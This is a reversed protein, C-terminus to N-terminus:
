RRYEIMTYGNDFEMIMLDNKAAAIINEALRVVGDTAVDAEVGFDPARLLHREKESKHESFFYEKPFLSKRAEYVAKASPTNMTIAIHYDVHNSENVFRMDDSIVFHPKNGMNKIQQHVAKIWIDQDIAERGLETGIYQYLQRPKIGEVIPYADFAELLMTTGHYAKGDSYGLDLFYQYALTFQQPNDYLSALYKLGTAFPIVEARYHMLGFIRQLGRGLTSKGSAIPGSIGILITM